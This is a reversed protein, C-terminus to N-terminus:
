GKSKMVFAGDWGAEPPDEAMVACRELYLKTPRDDPKIQQVKEFAMIAEKFKMNRYLDIAEAWPALHDTFKEGNNFGILEHIATGTSRGKVAVLDIPRTLFEDREGDEMELTAGSIMQDTGYQNNIPELRAALNVNDGMATISFRSKSGMNGVTADGSNVGTRIGLGPLGRKEFAESM